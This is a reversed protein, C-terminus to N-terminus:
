KWTAGIMLSLIIFFPLMISPYWGWWPLTLKKRWTTILGCTLRSSMSKKSSSISSSALSKYSYSWLVLRQERTTTVSLPHCCCEPAIQHFTTFLKVYLKSVTMKRLSTSLKAPLVGRQLFTNASSPQSHGPAPRHKCCWQWEPFHKRLFPASRFITDVDWPPCSNIPHRHVTYSLSIM